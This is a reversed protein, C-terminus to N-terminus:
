SRTLKAKQIFLSVCILNKDIWENQKSKPAPTSSPNSNTLNDLVLITGLLFWSM